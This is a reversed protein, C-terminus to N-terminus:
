EDRLAIVPDVRLARRVPTVHALLAVAVLLVAAIALTQVDLPAVGFMLARLYRTTGFVALVGIGIGAAVLAAGHRLVLRVIDAPRAGLAVRVGLERTRQSVGHSVVGYLGVAALLLALVGFATLLRMVFVRHASARAVLEELPAIAYVPVTPDLERVITRMPMGLGAFDSTASKAVAVLFSDTLQTQPTYMAAMPPAAVDEHHADAVVGIVTRWDGRDADGIRVESGIPNESGWVAKATGESIVIVPQSTALDRDNFFRGARIPIGMVRLYEPTAGYRQICPDDVTNPKMRGKAHFGWCDFDGGFPIQGALAVATVDPLARARELFREQFSVVAADEAYAKGVLSFQLTLVRSADFGPSARTLAVVTKLMLGACALLVLALALDTVVLASRGTSTGRVAGRADIGLGSQPDVRSSRWAPVLGFVTGTLAVLLASFALVRTDLAAHDLRPLSVPAVAAVGELAVAALALGVVAGGLTLLTSETLLQRVIRSRGAGLAGRLAFERQRSLSRAVLLNAVNACAILLVFGVAAMLIQLAPRVPGAIAERLPVVAIAGAEYDGPHERRLQERIGNMEATAEDVTMGAKLRGFARLHRCSRCADRMSVDYGIPAWLEAPAYYRAADLPEFTPPLVGIVRYERDNMVIARGVVSPDGGFRRRWLADSLLVVRWHDPRDEDATFDRGLAPRVGMMAFYNWSVRVAPLREAEGNVVLTPQWSRMLAFHEFTRSRARWDSVTTFGVNSSLGDPTADGVTVLRDPQPYPLPRLLVADLVTFIATNAGLGLALTIVVAATFGPARRLMRLGYRLDQRLAEIM